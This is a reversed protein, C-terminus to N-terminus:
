SVKFAGLDILRFLYLDVYLKVIRNLREGREVPFSGRHAYENRINGLERLIKQDTPRLHILLDLRNLIQKNDIGRQEQEPSAIRELIQWFHLFSVASSLSDLARQYIGLLESIAKSLSKDDRPQSYIKQGLVDLWKWENATVDHYDYHYEVEEYFFDEAPVGNKIVFHFPSPLYQAM